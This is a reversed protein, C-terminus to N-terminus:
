VSEEVWDVNAAASLWRSGHPRALRTGAFPVRRRRGNPYRRSSAAFSCIACHIACPAIAAPRGPSSGTIPASTEDPSRL